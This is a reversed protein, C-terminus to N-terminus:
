AIDPVDQVSRNRHPNACDTMDVTEVADLYSAGGGLTDRGKQSRYCFRISLISQLKSTWQLHETDQKDEDRRAVRGLHIVM